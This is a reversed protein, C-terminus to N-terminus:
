VNTSDKRIEEYINLYVKLINNMTIKLSRKIDKSKTRCYKKLM